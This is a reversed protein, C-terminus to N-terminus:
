GRRLPTRVNPPVGRDHTRPVDCLRRPASWTFRTANIRGLLPEIAGCRHDICRRLSMVRDLAGHRNQTHPPPVNPEDRDVVALVHDGLFKGLRYVGIEAGPWM